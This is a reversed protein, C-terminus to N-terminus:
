FDENDFYFKKSGSPRNNCNCIPQNGHGGSDHNNNNSCSCHGNCICSSSMIVTRVIFTETYPKIYNKKM